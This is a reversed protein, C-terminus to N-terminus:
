ITNAYSVFKWAGSRGIVPGFLSLLQTTSNDDRVRVVCDSLIVNPGEQAETDCAFGVYGLPQGGFRALARRLGKGGYNQLQFWVLSPSMEYPGSTFRTHPYYLDIFEAADITMGALAATDATQLAAVFREVLMDASSAGGTLETAGAALQTRFRRVEDEIPFVSDVHVPRDTTSGTSAAADRPTLDSSCGATALPMISLVVGAILWRGINAAHM